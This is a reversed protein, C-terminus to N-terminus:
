RCLGDMAKKHYPDLWEILGMLCDAADAVQHLTYASFTVIDGISDAHSEIQAFDLMASIRPGDLEPSNQILTNIKHGIGGGGPIKFAFFIELVKRIANPMLYAFQEADNPKDCLSKLLSYLYHYESDYERILHPMEVIKSSRHGNLMVTEIFFFGAVIDSDKKNEAKKNKPHLWKKLQRMFDLNHTLVFLQTSAALHQRVISVVHPM